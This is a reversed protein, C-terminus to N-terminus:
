ILVRESTMLEGILTWNEGDVEIVFRPTELLQCFEIIMIM